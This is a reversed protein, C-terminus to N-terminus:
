VFWIKHGLTMKSPSSRLCPTQLKHENGYCMRLQVKAFRYLYAEEKQKQFMRKQEIQVQIITLLYVITNEKNTRITLRIKSIGEHSDFSKEQETM